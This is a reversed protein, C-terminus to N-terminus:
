IDGETMGLYSDGGRGQVGGIYGVKGSVYWGFSVPLHGASKWAIELTISVAAKSQEWGNAASTPFTIHQGCNTLMKTEEASSDQVITAAVREHKSTTELWLEVLSRLELTPIVAEGMCRIEVTFHVGICFIVHFERIRLYNAPIQPLSTEGERLGAIQNNSAVLSFWVPGNRREQKLSAADQLSTIRSDGFTSSRKRRTRRTRKLKAPESTTPDGNKSIEEELKCKRKHDKTKTKSGHVDNHSANGNESKPDLGQSTSSKTGNAVDVLFTLPKWLHLKSDWPEDVDKNRRNSLSQNAERVDKRVLSKSRKGTTGTQASLRPTNVVLSSISREKRRAPLTISSERKRKLPFIKARLDQLIHDPRFM